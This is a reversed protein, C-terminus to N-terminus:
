DSAPEVGLAEGLDYERGTVLFIVDEVVVLVEPLERVVLWTIAVLAVVSLSQAIIRDAVMYSVMVPSDLGFLPVIVGPFVHLAQEGLSLTIFVNRVLNLAYIVPLSVALARVKRGAPAEVAGILGVFIAMSGVGTCAIAITSTIPQGEHWFLFTSEYPMTKEAIRYGEVTLGDVVEPYFGLLGMLWATQDTVLEVLPRRLADVAVFPLYVVGMLAVARTLVFLSDRGSALQYAVYASLPVAVVSGVGEVISQQEVAFYHIMAAWFVAFLVWGAVLVYRGAERDFREVAVGALFVAVVLWSLPASLGKFSALFEVLAEVM